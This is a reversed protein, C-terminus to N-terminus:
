GRLFYMAIAGFSIGYLWGQLEPYCKDSIIKQENLEYVIYGLGFILGLWGSLYSIYVTFIGVPIHILVGNLVASDCFLLRALLRRLKRM